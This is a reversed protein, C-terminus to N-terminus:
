KCSCRLWSVAVRGSAAAQAHLLDPWGGVIAKLGTGEDLVSIDTSSSSCWGMFTPPLPPWRIPGLPVAHHVSRIWLAMVRPAQALWREAVKPPLVNEACLVPTVYHGVGLVRVAEMLFCGYHVDFGLTAMEVGAAPAWREPYPALVGALVSHKAAHVFGLVHYINEM